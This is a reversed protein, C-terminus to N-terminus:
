FPIDDIDEEHIQAQISAVLEKYALASLKIVKGEIEVEYPVPQTCDIIPNTSSPKPLSVRDFGNLVGNRIYLWGIPNSEKQVDRFWKETYRPSSDAPLLAKITQFVADGVMANVKFTVNIPDQKTEIPM